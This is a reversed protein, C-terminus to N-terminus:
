FASWIPADFRLWFATSILILFWGAMVTATLADKVPSM